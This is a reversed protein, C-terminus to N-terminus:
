TVVNVISTLNCEMKKESTRNHLFNLCYRGVFFFLKFGCLVVDVCVCITAIDFNWVSVDLGFGLTNVSFFKVAAFSLSVFTHCLSLSPNSIYNLDLPM